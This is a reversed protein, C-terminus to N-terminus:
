FDGNLKSIFESCIYFGLREFEHKLYDKDEVSKFELKHVVKSFLIKELAEDEKKGFITKEQQPIIYNEVSNPGVEGKIKNYIDIM